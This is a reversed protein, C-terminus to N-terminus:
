QADVKVMQRVTVGDTVACVLQATETGRRHIEVWALREFVDAEALRSFYSLDSTHM